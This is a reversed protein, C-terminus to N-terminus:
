AEGGAVVEAVARRDVKGTTHNLPLAEVALYRTPAKYAALDRRVHRDLEAADVQRGPAAIVAAAVEQGYTPDPLGVVCADAVSPHTRLVREVEAPSVNAGGRIIMDSLRGTVHVYGREDVRVLDGQRYWGDPTTVAATLEPDRWYGLFLGPGNALAEGVEGVPVDRGDADVVRLSGGPVLRGAAGPVPRPDVVPDYTILPFCESACYTDHVPCGSIATWRDFVAENRPEGGSVCLRLSSLDPREDLGDLHAVLKVFTTTVGPLFTARHRSIAESVLTPDTRRLAIVTGGRMLTAMSATALGYLWAMPLCVVTRDAPGLRWVDAYIDLGALLSERSHMIAKPRSTSGSTYCILHLPARLDAPNPSTGSRLGGVPRADDIRARPLDSAAAGVPADTHRDTLVLVPDSQELCHALDAPGSSPYITVLVGGAHWVAFAAALFAGSNEAVIAVRDGPRLGAEALALARRAVEDCFEPYTTSSASDVVATADPRAAAHHRLREM